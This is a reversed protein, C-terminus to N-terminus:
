FAVVKNEVIAFVKDNASPKLSVLGTFHSFAPLICCSDTFYFCPFRLSQRGAGSIRIGPHIHGTFSFLHEGQTIEEGPDHCFLFPYETFCPDHVTIDMAAYHSAGLIDHNGKILMIEAPIGARWKRFLDVESNAESHFFDGTIILRQANFHQVLHILRQMDTQFVKQPVAIGSKRFHGTKGFHCDSVILSRADEWFIARQGSLWLTQGHVIHRLPPHM